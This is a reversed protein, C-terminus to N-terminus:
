RKHTPSGHVPTVHGIPWTHLLPAHRESHSPTVHSDGSTHSGRLPRQTELSQRVSFLQAPLSSHMAPRQTMSRQAVVVQGEPWAHTSPVHTADQAVVVQGIPWRQLWIVPMHM